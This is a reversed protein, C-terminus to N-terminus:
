LSQLLHWVMLGGFILLAGVIILTGWRCKWNYTEEIWPLWIGAGMLHIGFVVGLLVATTASLVNKMTKWGILLGGTMVFLAFYKAAATGHTISGDAVQPEIISIPAIYALMTLAVAVGLAIGAYPNAPNVTTVMDFINIAVVASQILGAFIAAFIFNQVGGLFDDLSSDGGVNFAVLKRDGLLDLTFHIVQSLGCFQFDIALHCVPWFNELLWYILLNNQIFLLGINLPNAITPDTPNGNGQITADAYMPASVTSLGESVVINHLRLDSLTYHSYRQARIVIYKITRHPNAVPGLNGSQVGAIDYQVNGNHVWLKGTRHISTYIYGTTDAASGGGEPYYVVHFYGKTSGVWSDGTYVVMVIQMNEDFLAVYMGGMQSSHQVLELEVSFESLDQLEFPKSLVHVFNPGHWGTPSSPIASPYLYGSGVSLAGSTRQGGWPFGNDLPFNDNDTCDDVFPPPAMRKNPDAVINIDHIRMENLAYSYYRGARIVITDIVRSANNVVWPSSGISGDLSNFIAGQEGISSDWWMKGTWTNTSYENASKRQVSSGDQPYFRMGFYSSTSSYSDIFWMVFVIEGMEDFVWVDLEGRTGGTTQIMEGIVSFDTLQYLRFPRDLHHVFNPGVWGSGAPINTPYMYSAGAPSYLDGSAPPGWDFNPDYPFELDDNCSDHFVTYESAAYSLRINYIREDLETRWGYRYSSLGTYKILRDKNILNHTLVVHENEGPFKGWLGVQPDYRLTVMGITDGYVIESDVSTAVGSEDYYIASFYQKDGGTEIFWDDSIMLSLAIKMNEDYLNVCTKSKGLGNVGHVFSLNASLSGFQSMKFYSPLTQIFTPGHWDSGDAVISPFTYYEGNTSLTGPYSRYPIPAINSVYDYDNKVASDTWLGGTRAPDRGVVPESWIGDAKQNMVYTGMPAIAKLSYSDIETEGYADITPGSATINVTLSYSAGIKWFTVMGSYTGGCFINPGYEWHGTTAAAATMYFRSVSEPGIPPDGPDRIPPDD